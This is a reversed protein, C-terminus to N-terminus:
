PGPVLVEGTALAAAAAHWADRLPEVLGRCALTSEADGSCNARVLESHLFGYLSALGPGGDWLEPRLSSALELVIEQAHMLQVGAAARDGSRQLTEARTLDLVLRDYLMTLLRAPTATLVSDAVFRARHAAYAAPSM